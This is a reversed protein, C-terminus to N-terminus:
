EITIKNIKDGIKIKDVVDMGKIVYGFVAYGGDLYPADKTLIYFQSGASDPDQSRAMAIAGRINKLDDHTELKIAYGPGGTGNGNPDGGQVVWDELRHFTLGDYFGRSALQVFNAVTLPMLDGRLEAIIQGKATDIIAKRKGARKTANIDAPSPPGLIENSQVLKDVDFMTSEDVTEPGKPIFIWVIAAIVAIAVVASVWIVQKKKSM